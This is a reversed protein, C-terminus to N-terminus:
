LQISDGSFHDFKINKARFNMNYIVKISWTRQVITASIGNQGIQFVLDNCMDSADVYVSFNINKMPFFKCFQFFISHEGSNTGCISPPSIGGPSTVSFTDTLCQTATAVNKMGGAAQGALTKLVSATSTSPGTITFQSFDLRM